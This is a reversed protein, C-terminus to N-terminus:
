PVIRFGYTASLSGVAVELVFEGQALPALTTDAVLYRQDSEEDARETIAVALELPQGERTLVRGVANVAGSVLIPVEVRLRETRRFRPDATAEYALGTTPGRRLALPEPSIAGGDADVTASASARVSGTGNIPHAEVRVTYRGAPLADGGPGEVLVSRQGAAMADEWSRPPQSGGPEVTITVTAGAQWQPLKLTARDLEVVARIRDDLGSAQVRMPLNGRAPGIAGLARTVGPPTAPRTGVASTIVGGARAEAETPALYGPRGRVEAGEHRVRVTIRRFRGDLKRNTSYYSLLYYSGTDRLIRTLAGATDNTNLVWAGDTQEALERLGTQRAHMRAADEAPMLPTYAGLSEDFAALGRPDVPYFSVNARNARQALERVEHEHDVYALMVRERECWDMSTGNGRRPDAATTVKGDFGAGIPPPGAPGSGGLVRALRDNQRFRVWGSSLLILFKREDRLDGLYRVTGDLSELTKKEQRREIMERAIGTGDGVEPYCVRIDEDRPDSSTMRDREGWTWSDRLLADLGQGRRVLTINQPTMEPTMLGVLDNPGIVQNLMAAVPAASRASGDLGVHWLDLYLIFVRASPDQALAQQDRTNGATVPGDVAAQGAAPGRAQVLEFHEVAQPQDDEFVEFDEVTLGTAPRGGINVYADVRVLNAGARFQPLPVEPQTASVTVVSLVGAALLLGRRSM